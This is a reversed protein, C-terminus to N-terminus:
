FGLSFTVGYSDQPGMVGVRWPRPGSGPPPGTLDGARYRALLAVSDTPQTQIMIEGVVIGLVTNIAASTFRQFAIALLAGVGVNFLASGVRTFAGKGFEDSRAARLLAAEAQALAVCDGGRLAAVRRQDRLLRTLTVSLTVVGVAASAAGVYLDIRDGEDQQVPLLALNGATLVAYSAGWGTAWGLSRRFAHRLGAQLFGLRAEAPAAALAPTGGSIAPCRAAGAPRGLAFLLM